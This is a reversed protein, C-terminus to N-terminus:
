RAKRLVESSQDSGENLFVEKRQSGSRWRERGGGQLSSNRLGRQAWVHVDTEKVKGSVYRVPEEFKEHGM